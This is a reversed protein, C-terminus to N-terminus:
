IFIVTELPGGNDYSCCSSCGCRLGCYLKVARFNNCNDPWLIASSCFIYEFKLMVDGGVLTRNRTDLYELKVSRPPPPSSGNFNPVANALHAFPRQVWSWVPEALPAAILM